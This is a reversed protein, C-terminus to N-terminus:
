KKMPDGDLKAWKGGAKDCDAKTAKTWGQAKCANQTHCANKATKCASTGKCANGGDCKGVEATPKADAKKAENAHAVGVVATLAASLLLAKTNM